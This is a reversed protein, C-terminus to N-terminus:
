RTVTVTIDGYNILGGDHALARIVYTGPESFTARAMWRNEPPAPPTRWGTSWPSSGGDRRDEWVKTQPPDFEIKGPGRYKLWSLRLGTASNPVFQHSQGVFFTPIMRVNPKGDDTAVASLAVPEGVRATLTKANEITLKPPQNGVMDPMFGTQGGAGFNAMMVTEDVAYQPKLTGYARETVGNSTVTWIVDKTGFNAPVRVKFVFQNRRPFFYAPQGQDPGGPEVSNGPGLPVDIHEEWNRNYYGFILDFSGDANRWFGEYVPVVSQGRAPAQAAPNTSSVIVVAAFFALMTLPRSFRFFRKATMTTVM